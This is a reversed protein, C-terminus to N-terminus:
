INLSLIYYDEEISEEEEEEETEQEEKEKEERPRDQNVSQLLTTAPTGQNLDKKKKTELTVPGSKLDEKEEKSTREDSIIGDETSIPSFPDIRYGNKM